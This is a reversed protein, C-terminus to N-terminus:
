CYGYGNKNTEQKLEDILEKVSVIKNVRDVNSGCFILGEETKGNVANVLANTICYPTNASNCTIICGLCNSIKTFKGEVKKIFNNNLARGPMGVPSKVIKVDEKKANVYARKYEDSADCEKTAVFRTGMQVGKAGLKLFKSIDEGSFIGGAAIVPIDKCGEYELNYIAEIVETIIQELKSASKEQLEEMSFGLHGGAEPGEVIIMDPVYNYKKIWTKTILVAARASSVIPAIKTKTNKIYEPLNKPIGAGSVILDVGKKVATKIMESYQRIAVMVNIGIIGNDSIKRAKDIQEELVKMNAKLSNKKFDKDNFGPNAASIVGICGEKAVAGALNGGSVGIGMGGQILPFKTIKNGIKLNELKIM